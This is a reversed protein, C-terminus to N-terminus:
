SPSASKTFKLKQDGTAGKIGAADHLCQKKENESVSNPDRLADVPCMFRNGADDKVWVMAPSKSQTM